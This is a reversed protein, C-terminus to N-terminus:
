DDGWRDEHITSRIERVVKVVGKPLYSMRPNDRSLWHSKRAEALAEDDHSARLRSRGNPTVLYYRIDSM